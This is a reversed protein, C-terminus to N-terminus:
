LLFFAIHSFSNDNKILALSVSKFVILLVSYIMSILELCFKTSKCVKSNKGILFYTLSCLLSGALSVISIMGGISKTFDKFMYKYCKIVLINSSEVFDFVDGVVSNLLANDKVMNNDAIENFKCNCLATMNDLNIGDM